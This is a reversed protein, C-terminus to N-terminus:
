RGKEEEEGKERLRMLSDRKRRRARRLEYDITGIILYVFALALLILLIIGVKPLLDLHLFWNIM